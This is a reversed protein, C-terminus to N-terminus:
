RELRDRAAQGPRINAGERDSLGARRARDWSMPWAIAISAININRIYLRLISRLCRSSRGSKTAAPPAPTSPSAAINAAPSSSSSIPPALTMSWHSGDVGGAPPPGPSFADLTRNLRFPFDEQLNEASAPLPIAGHLEHNIIRFAAVSRWPRRPLRYHILEKMDCPKNPNAPVLSDLSPEAQDRQDATPRVPPSARNSAALFDIFRRVESSVARQV